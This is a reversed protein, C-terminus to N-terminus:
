FHALVLTDPFHGYFVPSQRGGSAQRVRPSLYAHLERITVVRDANRDARGTLGQLLYFTFLGGSRRRDEIALQTSRGALLMAVNTGATFTSALRQAAAAVAPQTMGGSLCADAICLKTRAKSQRFVAKVVDHPLTSGPDNPRVDYPIFSSALGHGSFYLLVRDAPGAQRFLMLARLIHARTAQGNTLVQLRSAPVSGGAPSRLFAAMQRADRDAFRLDGTQYTLAQYDSIGVLVAYTKQAFTTGSVFMALLLWRVRTRM